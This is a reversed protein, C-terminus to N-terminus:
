ITGYPSINYHEKLYLYITRLTLLTKHSSSPTTSLEMQAAKRAKRQEM